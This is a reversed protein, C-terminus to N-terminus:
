VVVSCGEGPPISLVEETEKEEIQFVIGGINIVEGSFLRSKAEMSWDFGTAVIQANLQENMEHKTVVKREGTEADTCVYRRRLEAKQRRYSEIILAAQNLNANRSHAGRTLRGGGQTIRQTM